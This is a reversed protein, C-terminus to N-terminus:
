FEIWLYKMRGYFLIKQLTQKVENNWTTRHHQWPIYIIIQSLYRMFLINHLDIIVHPSLYFTYTCQVKSTHWSIKVTIHLMKLNMNQNQFIPPLSIVNSFKLCNKYLVNCKWDNKVLLFLPATLHGYPFLLICVSFISILNICIQKLAWSALFKYAIIWM